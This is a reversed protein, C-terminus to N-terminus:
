LLTAIRIADPTTYPKKNLACVSQLEYLPHTQYKEPIPFFCVICVQLVLPDEYFSDPLCKSHGRQRTDRKSILFKIKFDTTNIEDTLIEYYKVPDKKFFHIRIQNDIFEVPVDSFEFNGVLYDDKTLYNTPIYKYCCAFQWKGSLIFKYMDETRYKIPIQEIIYVNENFAKDAIQQAYAPYKAILEPLSKDRNTYQKYVQNFTYFDDVVYKANKSNQAIAIDVLEQNLLRRPVFEISSGYSKVAAYCVNITKLHDPIRKLLKGNKAVIEVALRETLSDVPIQAVYEIDSKTDLLDKHSENSGM